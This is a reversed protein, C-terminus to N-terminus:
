SIPKLTGIIISIDHFQEQLNIHWKFYFGFNVCVCVCVCVCIYIYINNTLLSFFLSFILSFLSVPLNIDKKDNINNKGIRTEVKKTNESITQHYYQNTKGNIYSAVTRIPDSSFINDYTKSKM